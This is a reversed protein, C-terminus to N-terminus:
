LKGVSFCPILILLLILFDVGPNTVGKLCGGESMFTRAVFIAFSDQGVRRRKLLPEVIFRMKMRMNAVEIANILTAEWPM